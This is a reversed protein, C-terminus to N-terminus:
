KPRSVRRKPQVGGPPRSKGQFGGGSDVPGGDCGAEGDGDRALTEVGGHQSPRFRLRDVSAPRHREGAAGIGDRKQKQQPRVPRLPTRAQQRKMKVVAQATPGRGAVRPKAGSEATCEVHREHGSAPRVSRRNARADGYGLGRGARGTDAKERCLQAAAPTGHQKQPMVAVVDGLGDEHSERAAAAGAAEGRGAGHLLLRGGAADVQARKEGEVFGGDDGGQPFRTRAPPLVRGVAGGGMKAIADAGVQNGGPAGGGGLGPAVGKGTEREGAVQELLVIIREIMPGDAERSGVGTARERERGQAINGPGHQAPNQVAPQRSGSGASIQVTVTEVGQDREQHGTPFSALAQSRPM